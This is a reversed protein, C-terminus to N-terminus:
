ATHPTDHLAHLQYRAVGHPALVQKPSTDSEEVGKGFAKEILRGKEAQKPTLNGGDIAEDADDAIDDLDIEGNSGDQGDHGCSEQGGMGEVGHAYSEREDLQKWIGAEYQDDSFRLKVREGSQEFEVWYWDQQRKQKSLSEVVGVVHAGGREYSVRDGIAVAHLKAPATSAVTILDDIGTQIDGCLVSEASEDVPVVGTSPRMQFMVSGLVIMFVGVVGECYPGIRDLDLDCVLFAITMIILGLSHGIGWRIGLSFARWSGGVSLACLASLHDPGSLVHVVGLALGTLALHVVSHEPPHEAAEM